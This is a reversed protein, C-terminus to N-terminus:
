HPRRITRGEQDLRERAMPALEDVSGAIFIKEDEIVQRVFHNGTRYRSTWEAPSYVTANVPRGLSQEARTLAPALDKLSVQGIVMLDVDSSSTEEGRAVSGYVFAVRVRRGM